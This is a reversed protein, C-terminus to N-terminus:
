KLFLIYLSDPYKIFVYTPALSFINIKKNKLSETELLCSFVVQM